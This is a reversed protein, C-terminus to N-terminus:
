HVSIYCMNYKIALNACPIDVALRPDHNVLVIKACFLGKIMANITEASKDAEMTEYKTMNYGGENLIRAM